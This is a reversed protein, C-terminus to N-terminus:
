FIAGLSDALTFVAQKSTEPFVVSCGEKTFAIVRAVQANIQVVEDLKPKARTEILAGAYSLNLVKCPLKEGNFLTLIAEPRTPIIRVHSRGESPTFLHRNMLWTLQNALKERRHKSIDFEIALGQPIHRVAKGEFRGLEDIYIVLNTGVESTYGSQLLVGGVSMNVTKFPFEERKPTMFRGNLALPVRQYRRNQATELLPHSTMTLGL